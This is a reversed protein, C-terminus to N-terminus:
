SLISTWLGKAIYDVIEYHETLKGLRHSIFDNANLKISYDVSKDDDHVGGADGSDSEEEESEEESTDAELAAQKTNAREVVFPPLGILSAFDSYYIEKKDVKDLVLNSGMEDLAYDLQLLEKLEARTIFGSSDKDFMPFAAALNEETLLNKLDLAGYVFAAYDLRGDGIPDVREYTHAVHNDTLDTDLFKEYGKKADSISVKGGNKSSESFVEELAAREANSTMKSSVFRCATVKLVKIPDEPEQKKLVKKEKNPPELDKIKRSKGKSTIWHHKMAEEPTPRVTEDWTLLKQIVDKADNSIKKWAPDSFSFDGNVISM